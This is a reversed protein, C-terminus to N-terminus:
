IKNFKTKISIFSNLCYLLYFIYNNNNYIIIKNFVLKSEKINSKFDETNNLNYNEFIELYKEIQNNSENSDNNDKNKNDNILNKKTTNVTTKKSTAYNNPIQQKNLQSSCVQNNTISKSKM